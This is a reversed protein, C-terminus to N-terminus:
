RKEIKKLYNIYIEVESDDANFGFLCDLNFQISDSQLKTIHYTERILCKTKNLSNVRKEVKTLVMGLWIGFDVTNDGNLDDYKGKFLEKRDIFARVLLQKDSSTEFRDSRSLRSGMREVTYISGTQKTFILTDLFHSELSAIKHFRAISDQELYNLTDAHKVKRYKILGAETNRNHFTPELFNEYSLENKTTELDSGLYTDIYVDTIFIEKGVLRYSDAVNYTSDIRLNMLLDALTYHIGYYLESETNEYNIPIPFVYKLDASRYKGQVKYLPHGTNSYIKFLKDENIEYVQMPYKKIEDVLKEKSITDTVIDKDIVIDKLLYGVALFSLLALISLVPRNFINNKESLLTSSQSILEKVQSANQKPFEDTWNSLQLTLEEIKGEINKATQNPFKDKWNKLDIKLQLLKIYYEYKKETLEYRSFNLLRSIENSNSWLDEALANPRIEGIKTIKKEYEYEGEYEPEKGEAYFVSLLQILEEYLARLRKFKDTEKEILEFFAKQDNQQITKSQVINKVLEQYKQKLQEKEENKKNSDPVINLFKYVFDLSCHKFCSNNKDVKKIDGFADELTRRIQNKM